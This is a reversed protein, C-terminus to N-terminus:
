RFLYVKGQQMEKSDGYLDIRYFYHDIPLLRGNFQGNWKEHYGISEFIKNNSHDFIEIICKPYKEINLIQWVDNIGDGNPTFASPVYLKTGDSIEIQRINQELTMICDEVSDFVDNAQVFNPIVGFSQLSEYNSTNAEALCIRVSRKRLHIMIREFMNMGSQDIYPVSGLNFVIVKFEGLSDIGKMFRSAFGFFIPGKINKVIVNKRFDIPDVFTDIIQAVIRDVKANSSDLEVVDAMKKMFYICSFSLGVIVGIILENYLTFAVVTLMIFNDMKPIFHTQRLTKFDIIVLGVTILVGALVSKPIFALLHGGFFFVSLLFIVNVVGSIRTHGGAKINAVTCATAGGGPIGGFMAAIFNGAGQGVLERDPSHSTNTMNDAVVSSLLTNISSVLAITFGYFIIYKLLHWDLFNFLSSWEQHSIHTFKPVIPSVMQIDWKFIFSLLTAVSIAIMTAPIGRKLRPLFLILSVTAVGLILDIWNLNIFLINFDTLTRQVDWASGDYVGFLENIQLLIIITGVGTRFGSIVPFPIYQIHRGLKLFGFLMQFAGSLLFTLVIIPFTRNWLIEDPFLSKVMLYERQIVLIIVVLVMGTPCSIQTKTGGLVVAIFGLIIACIVGSVAGFETSEGYAISVPLTIIGANLGGLLDSRLQSSNYSDVFM